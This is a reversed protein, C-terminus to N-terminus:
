LLVSRSLRGWRHSGVVYRVPGIREDVDVLALWVTCIQGAWHRFSHDDQPWGIAGQQVWDGIRRDSVVQQIVRDSLHPLDIKVLSRPPDGPNWSRYLPKVGTEYRGAIM